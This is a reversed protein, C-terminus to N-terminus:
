GLLLYPHHPSSLAGGSAPHGPATLAAAERWRRLLPRNLVALVLFIVGRPQGRRAPLEVSGLRAAGGGGEGEPRGDEVCAAACSSWPVPQGHVRREGAMSV